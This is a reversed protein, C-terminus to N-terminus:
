ATGNSMIMVMQLDYSDLFALTNFFMSTNFTYHNVTSSDSLDIVFIGGLFYDM